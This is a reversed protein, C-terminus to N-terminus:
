QLRARRPCERPDERRTEGQVKQERAALETKRVLARDGRGGGAHDRPPPVGPMVPAAKGASDEDRQGNDRQCLARGGREGGRPGQSERSEEAVFPREDERGLLHRVISRRARVRGGETRHSRTPSASAATGAWRSM